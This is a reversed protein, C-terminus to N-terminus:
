YLSPLIFLLFSCLSPVASSCKGKQSSDPPLQFTRTWLCNWLRPHSGGIRPCLAGGGRALARQGHHSQKSFERWLLHCGPSTHCCHSVIVSRILILDLLLKQALSGELPWRGWGVWVLGFTFFTVTFSLRYFRSLLAYLYAPAGLSVAEGRRSCTRPCQTTNDCGISDLGLLMNSGIVCRKMWIEQNATVPNIRLPNYIERVLLQLMTSAWLVESFLKKVPFILILGGNGISSLNSLPPYSEEAFPWSPIGKFTNKLSIVKQTHIQIFVPNHWVPFVNTAVCAYRECM